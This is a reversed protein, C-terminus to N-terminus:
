TSLVHLISFSQSKFYYATVGDFCKNLAFIRIRRLLWSVPLASWVWRRIDYKKHLYTYKVVYRIPNRFLGSGGYLRLLASIKLLHNDQQVVTVEQVVLSFLAALCGLLHGITQKNTQKNTYKNYKNIQKSIQKKTEKYTLSGCHCVFVDFYYILM